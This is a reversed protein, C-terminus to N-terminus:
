DYKSKYLDFMTRAIPAATAGGMGGYEVLVTVVVQPDNRPAFGTFWSHTKVEKKQIALKEAKELSITQTSGTKGCIDFDEILAARGTGEQNVSNWMGEIVKEFTSRQINAAEGAAPKEASKLLHPIVKPGRNAFIATLSAVQLPTVLLPGQGIAVSITEGPYWAADKAKRKWEPTPVLGEKEGPLDIGTKRGLGLMQAYHAIEEIGMRRGLNYFYINCSHRLGNTLNMFGHGSEQWCSFPNGYIEVIGGCFFSTDATIYKSELAGLAMVLKFVSGPSYVGRISRNELPFDPSNVLGLWEEPSFRNIFKNPDYTPYSALTLIEGSKAEMVIISGERGQLYEEAKKQIDFDITLLLKQRQRPELRKVEERKRGQSDVVEIVKGDEGALRSEYEAEIGTKGVLDGLRREKYKNRLEEPSLEQMYGIIHAAFIEFPYYRKPEAEIILEPLELKRAEIRLVEEITLNDKVVIPKFAPLSKYKDIRKKLINKELGLIHSIKTCSEEFNKCNERIISTKFSARNNAIIVEGSRDTLLGRPAPIVVERIRNAESLAWYKKHDLVQIKWYFLIILVLLLEVVLFVVNSRRELLSFDEYIKNNEM